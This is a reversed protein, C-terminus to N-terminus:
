SHHIRIPEGNANMRFVGMGEPFNVLPEPVVIYLREPNRLARTARTTPSGWWQRMVAEADEEDANVTTVWSM